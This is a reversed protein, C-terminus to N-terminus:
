GFNGVVGDKVGVQQCRRQLRVMLAQATISARASVHGSQSVPCLLSGEAEGRVALWVDLTAKGGNTAYVIREKDGKGIVRVAGTEADYDAAEGLAVRGRVHARLRRSGKVNRVNAARTYADTDILGLRWAARLVERVAALAKNVTAPATTTM